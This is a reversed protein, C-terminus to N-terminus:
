KGGKHFEDYKDYQKIMHVASACMDEIALEHITEDSDKPFESRAEEICDKLEREDLVEGNDAVLIIKM